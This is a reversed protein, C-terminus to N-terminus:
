APMFRARLAAQIRPPWCGLLARAMQSNPDRGMVDKTYALNRRRTQIRDRKTM